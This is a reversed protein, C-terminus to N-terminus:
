SPPPDEHGSSTDEPPDAAPPETRPAKAAPSEAPPSTSKSSEAPLPEAPSAEAPVAGGAREVTSRELWPSENWPFEGWPFGAPHPLAPAPTWLPEARSFETWPSGGRIPRTEQSEVAPIEMWPFDDPLSVALALEAARPPDETAGPAPVDDTRADPSPPEPVPTAPPPEPPPKAAPSAPDSPEAPSPEPTPPEAPPPETAPSEPASPADAPPKKRDKEETVPVSPETLTLTTKGTLPEELQPSEYTVSIEYRGAPLTNKVKQSFQCSSERLIYAYGVDGTEIVTGAENRIEYTGQVLLRGNGQNSIQAAIFTGKDPVATAKVADLTGKRTVEGVTGFIPVLVTSIVEVKLNRGGADTSKAVQTDLSEMEMAAWYEGPELRGRPIIVFRVVRRTSPPLTLEAPNFKLWPALSHKDPELRLLGGTPSFRFHLARIRFRELKDGTNTIEFRGSPRGKDLTVEVYAPSVAIGGWAAGAALALILVSAPRVMWRRM